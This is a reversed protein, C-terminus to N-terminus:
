LNEIKDSTIKINISLRKNLPSPIENGTGVNFLVCARRILRCSASPTVSDLWDVFWSSLLINFWHYYEVKWLIKKNGNLYDYEGSM